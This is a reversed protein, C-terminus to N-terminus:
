LNRDLWSVAARIVDAVEKGAIDAYHPELTSSPGGPPLPPLAAKFTWIIRTPPLIVQSHSGAGAIVVTDGHLVQNRVYRLGRLLRGETDSNRQSKYGSTSELLADLACVWGVCEGLADFMKQEDDGGAATSLRTSSSDIASRLREERTIVRRRYMRPQERNSTHLFRPRRSCLVAELSGRSACEPLLMPGQASTTNFMTHHRYGIVNGRDTSAFTSSRLTGGELVM